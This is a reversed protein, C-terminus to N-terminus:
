EVPKAESNDEEAGGRQESEDEPKTDSNISSKEETGEEPEPPTPPPPNRLLELVNRIGDIENQLEELENTLGAITKEQVPPLHQRLYETANAPRELEFYMSTISSMLAESVGSRHLYARFKNCADEM